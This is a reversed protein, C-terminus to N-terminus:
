LSLFRIHAVLSDDCILTESGSTFAFKLDYQCQAASKNKTHKKAKRACYRCSSSSVTNLWFRRIGSMRCPLLAHLLCEFYWRLNLGSIVRMEVGWDNWNEVHLSTQGLHLFLFRTVHLLWSSPIFYDTVKKVEKSIRGAHKHRLTYASFEDPTTRPTRRKLRHYINAM